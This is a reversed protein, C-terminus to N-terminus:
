NSKQYYDNMKRILENSVSSISQDGNVIILQGHNKFYELIPKQRISDERIRKRVIKPDDDIRKVLRVQCQLCKKERFSKSNVDPIQGCQPCVLRKQL